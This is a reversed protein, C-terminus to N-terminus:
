SVPVRIQTRFVITPYSQMSIRAGPVSCWADQPHTVAHWGQESFAVDSICTQPSRVVFVKALLPSNSNGTQLTFEEPVSYESVTM